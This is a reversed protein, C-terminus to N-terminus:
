TEKGLLAKLPALAMNTSELDCGCPGYNLNQGCNPCLGACDPRCLPKAPLNLLVHQRVAEDLDLINNEDIAFGEREGLSLPGLTMPFDKAPFYEEELEFSLSLEFEELCRSCVAKVSTQLKGTVLIGRDTRVLKLDGRLPFGDSTIEDVRYRRVEGVLGKLQQAVNIRM